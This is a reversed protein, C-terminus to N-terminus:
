HRWFRGPQGAWAGSPQPWKCLEGLRNYLRNHETTFHLCRTLRRGDADMTVFLRKLQDVSLEGTGAPDLNRFGLPTWTGLHRRRRTQRPESSRWSATSGSLVLYRDTGQLIAGSDTGMLRGCLHAYTTFIPQSPHSTPNPPIKKVKEHNRNLRDPNQKFNVRSYVAFTTHQKWCSTANLEFFDRCFLVVNIIEPLWLSSLTWM